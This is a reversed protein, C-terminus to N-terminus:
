MMLNQRIIGNQIKKGFIDRDLLDKIYKKAEKAGLFKYDDTFKSNSIDYNLKFKRSWKNQLRKITFKNLYDEKTMEKLQEHTFEPSNNKLGALLIPKQKPKKYPFLCDDEQNFGYKEISTRIKQRLSDALFM